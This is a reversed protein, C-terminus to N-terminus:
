EEIVIFETRRNLQHEKESCKVGNSCGNVLETEGYGKGFIRSPDIGKSVIYSITSAARINSLELNYSDPARSDTHAKTEIKINPYNELIAVVKDLEAAAKPTIDAKDLDFYIPNTKVMKQNRVIEFEEEPNLYITKNTVDDYNLTADINFSNNQYGRSAVILRYDKNCDLELNFNGTANVKIEELEIDKAYLKISASTIPLNTEKDLVFGSVIQKCEIPKIKIVKEINFNNIADTSFTEETSIYNVKEVLIKFISNCELDFKIELTKLDITEKLINNQFLSVKLNNLRNGTSEDVIVGTFLQKCVIPILSINKNHNYENRADTRLSIESTEFGEKEAIIKYNENCDVKFKYDTYNEILQSDILQENKFLKITANSLFEGTQKNTIAGTILQDCEIPSLEINKTFNLDAEKTTELLIENTIFGNKNATITYTEDCKLSFSFSSNNSTNITKITNGNSKLELTVNILNEGTVLNTIEGSVIQNCPLPILEINKINNYENKADTRLSIESTEFGVKEAIIKYNENCDVKFKYDIFNEIEQSDILQDNNFLKLSVGNLPEKTLKNAITGSILQDCEIPSLEINNTFIFDLQKDTKLAIEEDLFGEKQAIIKYSAECELEIRFNARSRLTETTVLKDNKYIKLDTNILPEGTLKNSVNGTVVQNCPLPSLVLNITLEKDYSADTKIKIETPYYGEKSAIIIYESECELKFNYLAEDFTTKESIIEGNKYLKINSNELPNGILKDTVIGDIQQICPISILQINTNIEAELTDDTEFSIENAIYHEKNATIKYSENCNLKFTYSGDKASALSDIPENDKNYITLKANAIPSKTDKKLILGTILQNCKIEKDILKFGYIDVDGKGKKRNSVFFGSNGNPNIVYGFDDYKSNIPAPLNEVETYNGNIFESKFIDLNGHGKHGYSAFYLTNNEDTYPYLDNNSTNVKNGLNRPWSLTGNSLINSVYIDYNGYGGPMNSIFFLKKGDKSISPSKISYTKSNFRVPSINSINYDSDLDAKFLNIPKQQVNSGKPQDTYYNNWCFYITKRDPSIALDTENFKTFVESNLRNTQIIDLSDNLKGFYFELFLHRNNVRRNSAFAKDNETKKSSAFLVTEADLFTVGLEAFRSNVESNFIKYEKQQGILVNTILFILIYVFKKM